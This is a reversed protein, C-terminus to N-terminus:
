KKFFNQLLGAGKEVIDDLIQGDGDSDLVKTLLAMPESQQKEIGQREEDLFGRLSNADLKRDRVAKGVVGMVIPALTALLSHSKQNDAGSVKSLLGEVTNQRGGFLHKLIGEGAGGQQSLASGLDDLISGDHDRDLAGLLDDAGSGRDVNRTLAGFLMPLATSVASKVANGELGVSQGIQKLREDNLQNILIDLLGAM